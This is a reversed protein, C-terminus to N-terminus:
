EFGYGYSQIVAQASASQLYRMLALAAPRQQARRLLAADQRIPAHLHAPVPWVTGALVKGDRMVQSAAVLGLTAHGTAVFQYAQSVSHGLVLRFTNAQALGMASLVQMAAVGYPALKPDAMALSEFAGRAFQERLQESAGVKRQWLVLRGVAYTLGAVAWGEAILQAPTESDAALLVDFPAGQKIQAYFYRTSGTVLVAEHGTDQAFAAAIERMPTAFNAAVAVTVEGAQASSM